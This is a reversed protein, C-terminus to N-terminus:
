EYVLLIDLLYAHRKIASLAILGATILRWYGNKNIKRKNESIWDDSAVRRLCIWRLEIFGFLERLQPEQIFRGNEVRQPLTVGTVQYV